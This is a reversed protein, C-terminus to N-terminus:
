PMFSNLQFSGRRLGVKDQQERYKEVYLGYLIVFKKRQMSTYNVVSEPSHM